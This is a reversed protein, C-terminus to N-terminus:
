RQGSGLDVTLAILDSVADAVDVHDNGGGANIHLTDSPTSGVIGIEAPTGAIGVSGDPASVDIWDPRGSGAVSIADGAGDDEGTSSRLDLAVQQVGTGTLDGITITDASGLAQFGFGEVRNLDMRIAAVDRIFVAHSGSATLRVNEAANSGAFNLRDSGAGGDVADSGEGPAWLATDNGAGLIETDNGRNGNVTDDGSGGLILDDGDSGRIDDDGAGGSLTDDGFSGVLVDNGAGGDVSIPDPTDFFGGDPIVGFSDDGSGLQVSIASFTNRDFLIPVSGGGLDVSLHQGTVDIVLGLVVTDDRTTGRVTLTNNNVVASASPAAASAGATPVGVVFGVALAAAGALTASRRMAHHQLAKVKV